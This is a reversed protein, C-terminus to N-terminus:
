GAPQAALWPATRERDLLDPQKLGELMLHVLPAADQTWAFCQEASGCQIAARSRAVAVIEPADARIQEADAAAASLPAGAREAVAAIDSLEGQLWEFPTARIEEAWDRECPEDGSFRPHYHAAEFGGPTGDVRDFLDARWLPRDVVLRQSASESGRHPQPERLRLELRVGHELHSDKVSIEFWHRVLIATENYVFAHLM